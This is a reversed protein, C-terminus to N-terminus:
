KDLNITTKKNLTEEIKTVKEDLSNLKELISCSNFVIVTAIFCLILTLCGDNDSSENESM